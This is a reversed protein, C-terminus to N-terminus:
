VQTSEGSQGSLSSIEILRGRSSKGASLSGTPADFDPGGLLRSVSPASYPSADGPDVYGGDLGIQGVRRSDLNSGCFDVKATGAIAATCKKWLSFIFAKGVRFIM